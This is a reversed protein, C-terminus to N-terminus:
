IRNIRCGLDTIMDHSFINSRLTNPTHTANGFDHSEMEFEFSKTKQKKPNTVDDDHSHQGIQENMQNFKM